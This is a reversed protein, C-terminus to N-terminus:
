EGRMSLLMEARKKTKEDYKFDFGTSADFDKFSEYYPVEKSIDPYSKQLDVLERAWKSWKSDEVLSDDLEYYIYSHVLIQRRRQLIKHYVEEEKTPYIAIKQKTM